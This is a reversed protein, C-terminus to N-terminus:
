KYEGKRIQEMEESFVKDMINQRDNDTFVEDALDAVKFRECYAQLANEIMDCLCANKDISKGATHLDAIKAVAPFYQKRYFVPDNRMFVTVDDVVDYDFKNEPQQSFEDIRM